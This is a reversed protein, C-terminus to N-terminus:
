RVRHGLDGRKEQGNRNADKADHAYEADRTSGVPML